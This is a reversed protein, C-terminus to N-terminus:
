RVNNDLLRDATLAGIERFALDPPTKIAEPPQGETGGVRAVDNEAWTKVKPNTHLLIATSDHRYWDHADKATSVTLTGSKETKGDALESLGVDYRAHLGAAKLEKTLLDMIPKASEPDDKFKQMATEFTKLNGLLLSSEMTKLTDSQDPSLNIKKELNLGHIKSIAERQIPSSSDSLEPNRMEKWVRNNEWVPISEPMHYEAGATGLHPVTAPLVDGPTAM